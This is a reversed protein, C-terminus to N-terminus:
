SASGITISRWISPDIHGPPLKPVTVGGKLERPAEPVLSSALRAVGAHPSRSRAIATRSTAVAIALKWSVAPAQNAAYGQMMRTLIVIVDVLTFSVFFVFFVFADRARM